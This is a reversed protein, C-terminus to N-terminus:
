KTLSIAQDELNCLVGLEATCKSNDRPYYNHRGTRNDIHIQKLQYSLHYLKPIEPLLDASLDLRWSWSLRCVLKKQLINQQSTNQDAVSLRWALLKRSLILCSSCIWPTWFPALWCGLGGIKVKKAQNEPRSSLVSMCFGNDSQLEQRLWTPPTQNNLRRAPRLFPPLFTLILAPTLQPISNTYIVYSEVHEHKWQSIPTCVPHIISGSYSRCYPLGLQIDMCNVCWNTYQNGKNRKRCNEFNHFASCTDERSLLEWSVNKIEFTTM